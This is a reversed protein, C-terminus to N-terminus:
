GARYPALAGAVLALQAEIAVSSAADVPMGAAHMFFGDGAHRLEVTALPSGSGPGRRRGPRRDGARDALRCLRRRRAAGRAARAGHAPPRAGVAARDLVHRAGRAARAAAAPARRGGSPASTPRRSSCTPVAACWTPSRTGTASACSGPSRRSRPRRRRPGSSGPTCCRPPATRRSSLAGAYLDEAPHLDIELATLVAGDPLAGAAAIQREDTPLAVLAPRQDVALDFPRRAADWGPAGPELVIGAADTALPEMRTIMRRLM